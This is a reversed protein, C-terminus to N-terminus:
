IYIPNIVRFKSTLHLDGELFLLGAEQIRSAMGRALSEAEDPNLGASKGSRSRAPDEISRFGAKEKDDPDDTRGTRGQTQPSQYSFPYARTIERLNM